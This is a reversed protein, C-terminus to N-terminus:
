SRGKDLLLGAPRPLRVPVGGLTLTKGPRLLSLHGFLLLPLVDDELVYTQGARASESDM